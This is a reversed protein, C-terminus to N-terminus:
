KSKNIRYIEDRIRDYTLERRRHAIKTRGDEEQKKQWAAGVSADALIQDLADIGDYDMQCVADLICSVKYGYGKRLEPELTAM